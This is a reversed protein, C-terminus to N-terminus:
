PDPCGDEDKHRDYDEPEDPCEDYKDFVGDDDRDPDEEIRPRAPASGGSSAGEPCGDTDADGDKDEPELPCRDDVDRLGDQDNDTDPCGDNDAFGDFDEPDDSCRDTDTIGDGDRDAGTVGSPAHSSAAEPCGDCNEDPSKSSTRAAGCAACLLLALLLKM